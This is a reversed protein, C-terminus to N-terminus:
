TYRDESKHQSANNTRVYYREVHLSVSLTLHEPRGIRAYLEDGL